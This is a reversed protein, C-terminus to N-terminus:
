VVGRQESLPFSSVKETEVAVAAVAVAAAM